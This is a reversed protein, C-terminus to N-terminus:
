LDVVMELFASYVSAFSKSSFSNEWLDKSNRSSRIDGLYIASLCDLAAHCDLAQFHHASLGQSILYNNGGTNSMLIEASISMAQLIGLDFYTELNPYINVNAASMASGNDNVYGVNRINKSLSFAPVRGAFIFKYPLEMSAAINAIQEFVFIGKHIHPRGM